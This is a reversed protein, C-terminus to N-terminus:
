GLVSLMESSGKEIEPLLASFSEHVARFVEKQPDFDRRMWEYRASTLVNGLYVADSLTKPIEPAPRPHDHDISAQVLEEPLGLTKLLSVGIGEHWQMIVHKVTEPRERLEPYQTVRYLMYSAGLDHVLGALLAEEPNIRTYTHALVRAAVATRVTHEWIDRALSGFAVMEGALLIEHMAVALATSRVVNVGLRTIASSLDCVAAGQARYAASNALRILRAAVLPEVSVIREIESVAVSSRQLADRLRLMLDFCTPFVVEGSLERAVDELMQFRQAVLADGVKDAESRPNM